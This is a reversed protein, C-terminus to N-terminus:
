SRADKAAVERAVTELLALSDGPDGDAADV